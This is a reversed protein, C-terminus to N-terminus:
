YHIWDLMALLVVMIYYPIPLYQECSWIGIRSQILEKTHLHNSTVEFFLYQWNSTAFNNLHLMDTKACTVRKWCLVIGVRSHILELSRRLIDFIQFRIGQTLRLYKSTDELIHWKFFGNHKVPGHNYACGTTKQVQRGLALLWFFLELPVVQVHTIGTYSIKRANKAYIICIRWCRWM